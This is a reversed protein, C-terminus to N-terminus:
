KYKGELGIYRIQVPADPQTGDHPRPYGPPPVAPHNIIDDISWGYGPQVPANYEHEADVGQYAGPTALVQGDRLWDWCLFGYGRDADLNFNPIDGPNDRTLRAIVYAAYDAPDGLQRGQGPAFGENVGAVTEAANKAQELKKRFDGDGPTDAMLISADQGAVFPSAALEPFETPITNGSNDTKPWLWPRVFESPKEDASASFQAPINPIAGPPDLVVDHPYASVSRKNQNYYVDRDNGSKESGMAANAPTGLLGGSLDNLEADLVNWNDAWGIGLTHLSPTIEQPMPTTYGTISMLWHLSLWMNYLPLEIAEYIAYRAPWTLPGLLGAAIAAAAWVIVEVIYLFWAFIALLLDWFSLSSDHSGDGHNGSGPPSPFDPFPFVEPPAPPMLKYYDTTIYKLYKYLYFYTTQLDAETPYGTTLILPHGACQGNPGPPQVDPFAARMANVLLTQIGAPIESDVDCTKTFDKGDPSYVPRQDPHFFDTFSDPLPSGTDAKFAIWLHQAAASLAQYTERGGFEADYLHADMHNEILHHRQWHLRYPGGCKQNVFSHGVVDTALHTMWGLAFAKEQETGANGWLAAGFEFTKRYHFMDSWFYTKEDFGAPVGSSLLSFWDYQQTAFVLLAESMINALQTGVDSISQIMGGTLANGIQVAEDLMPALIEEYSAIYPDLKDYIEEILKFIKYLLLNEKAVPKFDPLLCFMDPGIAGLAVYAPNRGAIGELEQASPGNEGFLSSAGAYNRLNPLAKRAVNMHILWGPM